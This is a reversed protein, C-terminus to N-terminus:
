YVGPMLRKTSRSYNAYELGFAENLAVEEVHIRYLLAATTPVVIIALSLWNRTYLGVAFFVMLLGTYSPHRVFRFLGTKHVTQTAHIAVNASFSKGLTAIAIWRIALGAVLLALAFIGLWLADGPINPAHTQGYWIGVTLSGVITPWLIILSGRDRVNGSSRRTRTALLIVIESGVWACYVFQWINSLDM